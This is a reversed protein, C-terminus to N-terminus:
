VPLTYIKSTAVLRLIFLQGLWAFILFVCLVLTNWWFQAFLGCVTIVAGKFSASGTREGGAAPQPSIRAASM